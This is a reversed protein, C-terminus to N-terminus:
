VPREEGQLEDVMLNVVDVATMVQSAAGDSGPSGTETVAPVLNNAVLWQGHWAVTVLCLLMLYQLRADIGHPRFGHCPLSVAGAPHLSAAHVHGPDLYAVLVQVAANVARSGYLSWGEEVVRQKGCEMSVEHALHCETSLSLRWRQSLGILLEEM